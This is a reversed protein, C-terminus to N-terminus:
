RRSRDNEKMYTRYEHLIRKLTSEAEELEDKRKCPKCKLKAKRLKTYAKDAYDFDGKQLRILALRMQADHLRSNIKVAREFSEEAEDIKGLQIESIGAMYLQFGRDNGSYLVNDTNTGGRRLNPVNVLPAVPEISPGAGQAGVTPIASAQSITTTAERVAQEMAGRAHGIEWFNKEFEIEATVYDGALFASMAKDGGQIQGTTVVEDLEDTPTTSDQGTAPLALALATLASIMHIRM